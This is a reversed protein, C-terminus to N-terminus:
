LGWLGYTPVAVRVMRRTIEVGREDDVCHVTAEVLHTTHQDLLKRYKARAEEERRKEPTRQANKFRMRCLYDFWKKKAPRGCGCHCNNM